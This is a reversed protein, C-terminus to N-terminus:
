SQKGTTGFGEGVRPLIMWSLHAWNGLAELGRGGSRLQEDTVLHQAASSPEYAIFGGAIRHTLLVVHRPVVADLGKASDGAAYVPVPIGDALAAAAHAILSDLDAVDTDDVLAGRFRLGAFRTHNNVRWPPTGLTRPWPILFLIGRRVTDLHISRQLAVWRLEPTTLGARRPVRAVEPPLYTSVSRGSAVWLGVFPDGVMLMIAMSAAGCTTDDVQRAEVGAIMVPGPEASVVPGLALERETPSLGTWGRALALVAGAPAGSALGRQIAARADAPLDVVVKALRFRETEPLTALAKRYARASAGEPLTPDSARRLRISRAVSEAGGWRRRLGLARGLRAVATSLQWPM